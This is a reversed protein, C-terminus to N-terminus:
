RCPRLNCAVTLRIAASPRRFNITYAINGDVINDPLGTVTVIQPKTCYDAANPDTYTFTLSTKDIMGETLDSSSLDITVSATPAKNLFVMFKAQGGAETTTLPTIPIVSIGAADNDVNTVSVDAVHM